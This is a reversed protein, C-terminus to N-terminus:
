IKFIRQFEHALSNFFNSIDTVTKYFLNEKIEIPLIKKNMDDWDLSSSLVACRELYYLVGSLRIKGEQDHIITELYRYLRDEKLAEEITENNNKVIDNTKLIEEIVNHDKTSQIKKKLADYKDKEFWDPINEKSWDIYKARFEEDSRMLPMIWDLVINSPTYQVFFSTRIAEISYNEGIYHDDFKIAQEYGPIGYEKGIARLAHNHNHVNNNNGNLNTANQLSISRLDALTNYLTLLPTQEINRCIRLYQEVMTSFYKGGCLDSALTLEKIVSLTKVPTQEEKLTKIIHLFHIEIENYFQELAEYGGRPTGLFEERSQIRNILIQLSKKIEKLSSKNTASLLKQPDIYNVAQPDDLNINEFLTLFESISVGEPKTKPTTHPIQHKYHKPNIKFHSIEFEEVSRVPYSQKMKSCSLELEERSFSSDIQEGMLFHWEVRNVAIGLILTSKSPDLPAILLEKLIHQKQDSSHFSNELYHQLASKEVLEEPNKYKIQPNYSRMMMRIIDVNNQEFTLEIAPLGHINRTLPSVGKKLLYSITEQFRYEIALIILPEEYDNKMDISLGHRLLSLLAKESGREIAAIAVREQPINYSSLSINKEAMRVLLLLNQKQIALPILKELLGNPLAETLPTASEITKQIIEYAEELFGEELYVTVSDKGRLQAIKEVIDHSLTKQERRARILEEQKQPSHLQKDRLHKTVKLIRLLSLLEQETLDNKEIYSRFTVALQSLSKPLSTSEGRLLSVVRQVCSLRQKPRLHVQGKKDVTLYPKTGKEIYQQCEEQLTHITTNTFSINQLNNM